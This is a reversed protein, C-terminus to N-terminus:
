KRKIAKSKKKGFFLFWSTLVLVVAILLWYGIKLGFWFSKGLWAVLQAWYTKVKDIM